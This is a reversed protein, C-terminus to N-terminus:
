APLDPEIMTGDGTIFACRVTDNPQLRRVADRYRRLQEVYAPLTQPAPHLKLDLVWWSRTGDAADFAVLRDARLPEGDAAALAVENGAWAFVTTDYFRRCAPSGLVAAARSELEGAAADDLSWQAAAARALVALPTTGASPGSAWELVRHLASGLRASADQAAWPAAVIGPLPADWRPLAALEILLAADTTTLGAEGPSWPALHPVLLPWWSSATPQHPESRSVVLREKARTMAVYLANLWERERAENERALLGRLSPPCRAEATIFACARPAAAEVPWDVLLTMSDSNRAEADADMLFVVPAELGKAAHVTLLQVADRPRALTAKLSRRKLARVFGYITPYRAGDLELALALLAAIAALARARRPAPVRTAVHASFDAEDVVRDLLDHPPLSHAAAAWQALLERPWQLAASRDAMLAPWWRWDHEAAAARALRLLDADDIGFLASKLVQALSLDHRPSALVDLLAVLDRVEPMEMLTVQEAAAYPLQRARLEAELHRLSLRQRALVMIDGAAVGDAVLAAIGAAVQRSEHRRWPEEPEVRPTTLSDRWVRPAAGPLAGHQHQPRPLSPLALALPAEVDGAVETTHERFGGFRQQAQAAAFVRNVARVVAPANRRTHDCELLSGDLAERVFERAADFVRPEARRFRYISQKPDGVIFLAPAAAGGGAGAYSSLWASLAQWQLPSTDQFEDILLHRVQADLRQQVWGALASDRLLALAVRELDNMDALGRERKLAAYQALLARSLRVMRAHALHADHQAVAADIDHLAALADDLRPADLHKRFVGAKTLLAKRVAKLAERPDALELADLLAAGQRRPTTNGQTGLSAAVAVFVKRLAPERLRRAPDAGDLTAPAVSPLLTGARDALEVEIRRQWAADLWKCLQTRGHQRALALYDDHLAPQELLQGHFRRFLEPALEAPDEILERGADLGISDLLDIPAARLLQAFWAHFTRIEVARGGDLLAEHLAGLPEALLRAAAPELGRLRLQEIREADDCTAWEALWRDLRQRMEGAAKRTFTIALIQQPPTGALLARVIRSVLMWTKGAGACAEVVVSRAPDCAVAYFADRDAHRGDIRFAAAGTGVANDAAALDVPDAAATDFPLQTQRDAGSAAVRAM